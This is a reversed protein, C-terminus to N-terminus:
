LYFLQSVKILGDDPTKILQTYRLFKLILNNIAIHSPSPQSLPLTPSHPVYLLGTLFIFQLSSLLPVLHFIQFYRLLTDSPPKV